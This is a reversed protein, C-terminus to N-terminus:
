HVSNYIKLIDNVDDYWLQGTLPANPPTSNAFNELHQIYNENLFIGYGAYNKGILTISTATTNVTGDQVTAIVAVRQQLLQIHWKELRNLIINNIVTVTSHNCLWRGGPSGSPGGNTGISIGAGIPALTQGNIGSYAGSDGGVVAGGAGGLPFGAGGGGGGGGDGSKDVGQAGASTANYATAGQGLGVPGNGGGGGGGGGAAVIIQTAGLRVTTAAGGGGGGGSTGSGGANGGRGGNYTGLPDTGGSAGGTGRAGNGGPRGGSGVYFTFVDGPTVQITATVVNGAFGVYGVASDNGGDGGGAGAVTLNASHVGAPITYTYTGPTSYTTTTISDPYFKQWEGNVNVHASRVNAWTGSNNIYLEKVQSRTNSDWVYLKSM